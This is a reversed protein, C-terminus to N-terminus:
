EETRRMIHWIVPEEFGCSKYLLFPHSPSDLRGSVVAFDAAEKMNFLLERVIFGGLGRRRYGPSVQIWDLIGERIDPDVLAAGTAAATGTSDDILALWMGKFHMPGSLIRALEEESARERDYCLAIHQSLAHAGIPMLSFGEPVAPRKLGKMRHQMKFYPEDIYGEPVGSFSDERLILMNEPVSLSRAKWYPLSSAATPAAIYQERTMM